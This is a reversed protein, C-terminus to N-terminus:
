MTNLECIVAAAVPDAAIHMGGNYVVNNGANLQPEGAAWVFVSPCGTPSTWTPTGHTAVFFMPIGSAVNALVYDLEDTSDIEVLHQGLDGCAQAAVPYPVLGMSLAQYSRQEAFKRCQPNPRPTECLASTALQDFGAAGCPVSAMGTSTQLLCDGVAEHSPEGTAWSLFPQCDDIATWTTGDFSAGLWFPPVGGHLQRALEPGDDVDLAALDMAADRCSQRATLWTFGGSSEYSLYRNADYPLAGCAAYPDAIQTPDLSLVQNCASLAVLAGLVVLSGVRLM